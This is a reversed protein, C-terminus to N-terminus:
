SPASLRNESEIFRLYLNWFLIRSIGFRGISESSATKEAIPGESGEIIVESPETKLGRMQHPHRAGDSESEAVVHGDRFQDEVSM